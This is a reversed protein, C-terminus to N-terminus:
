KRLVHLMVSPYPSLQGGAATTQTHKLTQLLRQRETVKSRPHLSPFSGTSQMSPNRKALVKAATQCRRRRRPHDHQLDFGGLSKSTPLATSSRPQIPSRKTPSTTPATGNEALLADAANEHGIKNSDVHAIKLDQFYSVKGLPSTPSIKTIKKREKTDMTGFGVPSFEPSYGPLEEIPPKTASKPATLPSKAHHNQGYRSDWDARTSLLPLENLKTSSNVNQVHVLGKESCSFMTEKELGYRSLKEYCYFPDGQYIGLPDREFTQQVEDFSSGAHPLSINIDLSKQAFQVEKKGLRIMKFKEQRMKEEEKEPDRLEVFHRNDAFLNETSKHSDLLEAHKAHRVKHAEWLCDVTNYGSATIKEYHEAPLILMTLSEEAKLMCDLRAAGKSSKAVFALLGDTAFVEGVGINSIHVFNNNGVRKTPSQLQGKRATLTPNSSRPAWVSVTGATIIHCGEPIQGFEYVTEGRRIKKEIMFFCLWYLREPPWDRFSAIRRLLAFRDQFKGAQVSESESPVSRKSAQFAAVDIVLVESAKSAVVTSTRVLVGELAIGGVIEGPHIKEAAISLGVRRGTKTRSSRSELEGSMLFFANAAKDSNKFLVAGKGLQKMYVTSCLQAKKHPAWASCYKSFFNSHKLITLLFNIDSNSRESKSPQGLLIRRLEVSVSEKISEATGFKIRSVQEPMQYRAISTQLQTTSQLVFDYGSGTKKTGSASSDDEEDWLEEDSNYEEIDGEGEQNDLLLGMRAADAASQMVARIEGTVVADFNIKHLTMTLVTNSAIVNATRICDASLLAIEGFYSNAGRVSVQREGSEEDDDNITVRTDGRVVIYFLYGREGQKCIYTGPEFERPRMVDLIHEQQEQSLRSFLPVRSLLGHQLIRLKMKLLHKNIQPYEKVLSTYVDKQIVFCDAGNDGAMAAANRPAETLLATEGFLEGKGIKVITSYKKRDLSKVGNLLIQEGDDQEFEEMGADNRRLIEIKGKDIVYMASGVEGQDFLLEAPEFHRFAGDQVLREALSDTMAGALAPANKILNIIEKKKKGKSIIEKRAKNLMALAMKNAMSIKRNGSM